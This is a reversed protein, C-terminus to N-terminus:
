MQLAGERLYNLLKGSPIKQQFVIRPLVLRARAAEM